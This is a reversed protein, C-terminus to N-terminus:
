PDTADPPTAVAGTPLAPERGGHLPDATAEMWRDLRAALGDRVAACAPDDARDVREQPDLRLDYLALDPHPRAFGGAELVADRSPSSDCNPLVPRRRTGFRRVLNWEKTRICRMPEYAAHWTVESFVEQRVARGPGDLLPHLDVGQVREPVPLGALACITPFLDIHSALQDITRGGDWGGPGAMVLFVGTGQHTLSCKHGPFPIGHDTTAIVLTDRERGSAALADLVAGLQRDWAAVDAAFHAIDARTAPSDPLLAPPNRRGPPYSQHEPPTSFGRGARHTLFWSLSLFFPQPPPQRLWALAPDLARHDGLWRRYGVAAATAKPGAPLDAKVHNAPMGWAATEYGHHALHHALHWRDDALAFGRHALGLMGACHPHMGTLLGARSPSCTPGACHCDRFLTGRAALRDLSPTAVPAGLTGIWRGTDHTNLYLINPLLKAMIRNYVTYFTWKLQRELAQNDYRSMAQIGASWGM